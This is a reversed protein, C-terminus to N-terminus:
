CYPRDVAIVCFHNPLKELVKERIMSLMESDSIKCEFPKVVDFILNTHTEGPVMRFDHITLKEDIAKVIESVIEKNKALQPNKLDIPDLHIVTECGFKTAVDVETVDIVDHLEFIDMDGPVEAHLSIMKRGPGYDHVVLDHIGVIPKHELVAAEIEKVFDEEPKSGLLPQLTEKAAEYGALFIFVSVVLGAIGDVPFTTFQGLVMSVIVVLTSITDSLSDKATAELSVSNIKKGISHNYFYMYIKVFIALILII